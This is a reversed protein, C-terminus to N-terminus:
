KKKSLQDIMRRLGAVNRTTITDVGMAIFPKMLAPEDVTYVWVELGLAHAREVIAARCTLYHMNLGVYGQEQASACVADAFAEYDSNEQKTLEDPTNMMTRIDPYLVTMGDSCGTIYIQQQMDLERVLRATPAISDAAKLDLNLPLGHEKALKLVEELQALEDVAYSPHLQVRREPENLEDFTWQRLLQSDDHLLLAIGDKSARVDVELMDAGQAIGELVSRLTNDPAEGSGTHASINVKRVVTM